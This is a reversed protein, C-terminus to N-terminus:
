VFQSHFKNLMLLTSNNTYRRFKWVYTAFNFGPDSIWEVAIVQLSTSELEAQSGCCPKLTVKANLWKTGGTIIISLLRKQGRIEIMKEYLVTIYQSIYDPDCFNAAKRHPCFHGYFSEDHAYKSHVRCIHRQQAYNCIQEHYTVFVFVM